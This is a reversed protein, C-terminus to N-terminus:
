PAEAELASELASRSQAGDLRTRGVYLLPVGDGSAADLLAIDQDIRANTADDAVCRQFAERPAGHQLALDECAGEGLDPSAFLAHAYELARARRSSRSACRQARRREPM